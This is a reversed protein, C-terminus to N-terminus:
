PEHPKEPSADETKANAIEKAIEKALAVRNEQRLKELEEESMRPQHREVEQLAFALIIGSVITWTNMSM